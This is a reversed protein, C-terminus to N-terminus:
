IAETQREPLIEVGELLGKKEAWKLWILAGQFADEDSMIIHHLKHVFQQKEFPTLQQYSECIMIIIKTILFLPASTSVVGRIKHYKQFCIVIVQIGCLTQPCLHM